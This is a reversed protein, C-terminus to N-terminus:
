KGAAAGAESVPEAAALAPQSELLESDDVTDEAPEPEVVEDDISDEPMKREPDAQVVIVVRRNKARGEATDNSAVPHFEGYGMSVMREPSVELESFLRVVTAARAASLEWNSPYLYTQIPVTDTYGKVQIDYDLHKLVFALEKLLPRAKDTLDSSGSDFLVRSTVEVELKDGVATIGVSGVDVFDKLKEDIEAAVAELGEELGDELGAQDESLEVVDAELVTYQEESGHYKTRASPNKLAADLDSPPERVLEGIQVPELSRVPTGFATVMSESLVRYKGENVSSISYMVVFFAFLLTIFDAYSILWREHNVHEEPQKKRGM